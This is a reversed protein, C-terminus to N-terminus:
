AQAALAFTPSETMAQSLRWASPDAFLARLLRLTMAHGTRNATFHGRLRHGALALDGLADLAKHRVFEDRYRLGEENLVRDGAVVIANDLSGGQALGQARLMEVDELFGFTRAGALERKFTAGELTGEWRQRRIAASAFDIEFALSFTSAPSLTARRDGEGVTITKLVEIEQRPAEQEVVGACDILFVFPDASGDKIPVEPGDLEVLANDIGCGVFAAMLHEITNVMTGDPARLSTCLQSEVANNWHAAISVGLDSRRFVIGHGAPAPALSLAVHAGCHLAIGSCHIPNKLTRQYVPSLDGLTRPVSRTAREGTWLGEFAM